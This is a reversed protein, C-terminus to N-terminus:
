APRWSWREGDRAFSGFAEPLHAAAVLRGEDDIRELFASRTEAALPEDFDSTGCLGPQLLQAPHNVLDGSVIARGDQSDVVVVQHGPTHGPAHVVEVEPTLRVSAASLDLVGASELPALTALFIKRDEEDASTSMLEWDARHVLYRANPFLPDGIGDRLNWGLHDDHVHTIVVNSVDDPDVGALSLETPLAGRTGTWPFAPASAPGVGTDVLITRDESRLVFCHVHLKWRDGSFVDPYRERAERWTEPDAGPFSETVPHTALVIADCLAVIEV